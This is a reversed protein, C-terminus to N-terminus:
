EMAPSAKAKHSEPLAVHVHRISEMHVHVYVYLTNGERTRTSEINTGGLKHNLLRSDPYAVEQLVWEAVLQYLGDPHAVLAHVSGGHSHIYMYM